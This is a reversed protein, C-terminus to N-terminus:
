GDGSVGTVLRPDDRAIGLAALASKEKDKIELMIDFDAPLTEKLFRRFDGEVIHMAHAGVRKGPEQSSYDVMPIGDRTKWTKRVPPLLSTFREGNNLISHHFADAIVPVGTREHVALCDGLSYLREDNEIVLRDQIAADLRDYQRAFREIAAQKDGYIGGVHVQVKASSDLGLLDLVQVQYELDAISRQLVGNDQANLLVFQDPHMSIRLRSSRIFDGIKEFEDAFVESWPFTCVPHSAFPVLDSTIRFFLMGHLANYALIKELCVLNGDVTNRMREESYSALRFTRSATCGISLNICPYGIRM